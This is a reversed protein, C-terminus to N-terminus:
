TPVSKKLAPAAGASSAFSYKRCLRNKSKEISAFFQIQFKILRETAQRSPSRKYHIHDSKLLNKERWRPM